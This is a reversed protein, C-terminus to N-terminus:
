AVRDPPEREDFFAILNALAREGMARRTEVTASGLHPLLVVNDLALLVPPVRPEQEYVDLGAAAITGARLAEALAAEDVVDGRATNVLVAHPQMRALADADILHRTEPTAPCHLSVVDSEALLADLSPAPTAGHDAADARPSRSVYRVHMGFGFHARRAVARGIRGFGVIGLTKGTLSMGLLQTPAWGSWRGARLVREGEGLRRAAMLMLALAVDATDETLVGPTNTVVLGRARAVAVDIHNYGVGFNAIVRARLPVAARLVDGDVRDTVTCLMGDAVRLAETLEAASMPRDDANLQADFHAAVDREVSAPLRRTVVIRPRASRADSV